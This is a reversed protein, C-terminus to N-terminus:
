VYDNITMAARQTLLRTSSLLYCNADMSLELLFSSQEEKCHSLVKSAQSLLSNNENDITKKIIHNDNNL